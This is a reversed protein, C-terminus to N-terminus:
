KKLSRSTVIAIFLFGFLLADNNWILFIIAGILCGIILFKFNKKRKKLEEKTARALLEGFPIGMTLILIGIALQYIQEM